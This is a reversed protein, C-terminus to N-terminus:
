VFLIRGILMGDFIEVKGEAMYILSCDKVDYIHEYIAISKAELPLKNSYTHKLGSESFV